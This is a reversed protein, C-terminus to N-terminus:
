DDIDIRTFPGPGFRDSVQAIEISYSQATGDAARMADTYNFSPVTLTEERRLGGADIIRLAYLESAEGLPVEIGEWSDADIRSRRIWSVAQGEASRVARVHVPSYPRLGVGQFALDRSVFSADDLSRRAPGIRYHRSLGRASAPLDIQRVSQDLLIFYSGQPWIQPMFADTGLQGRLRTGIEWLNEGILNAGAFQIIEWDSTDGSGIAAVNAGNLVAAAEASSLAGAALRVRLPAGRDWLGPQAAALATELTGAIAPREVLSNLTLGDRSPASYVAVSGPWPTAAVALHPAHPVEDGTLMPLDLFVPSVPVPAVFASVSPLDEVADSPDAVTPEVRLAELSRVGRDEVRDVRWTSGDELALMAGAGIRRLSPPLNLRITDRSLRVEALWREAVLQGEAATLAVPLDSASVADSADGPFVAEAVREEYGAEAATYAMRVRGTVEAEASRTESIGGQGEDDLATMAADISLDPIDPLPEFILKGEREVAMFGFVMMLSQLRARASETDGNLHGRVLGFLRSVDYHAVGARECLQAVVLDLPVADSRGGFWHGRTWNAGDTWRDRDNPFAPWPRADWAWVHGRSMDIMPGGYVESIPNNAPEEWYSTVARLYQAQLLDDRRGTSFHPLASESSKDDLFKNPQNTGKDIASCGYETFWIPKSQPVWPTPETLLSGGRREIHQSMWWGRLDKYRYVFSTEGGAKPYLAKAFTLDSADEPAPWPVYPEHLVIGGVRELWGGADGGSWEGSMLAAGGTTTAEGVLAGDMILRVRGPATPQLEWILEHLQGDFPLDSVPIDLVATDVNSGDLAVGGDGARLRFLTGGGRVGMWSGRGSGGCEWLVADSPVLPLRVRAKFVATTQRDAEAAALDGLSGPPVSGIVTAVDWGMSGDTIPERRQAARAEESPYYWHYGEGGEVNSRLYDLDHISGWFADAHVSGDRWDSLPMYNDIAIFDIEDDAWLPDLHFFVDGSGDQPHYGFYESWDAAYSLKADPLLQRVEAALDILRTVAPFGTEDRMQTLSRMESGICFAEVGGAAACVAAAHLIFRSYSWEDPGSYIITEGVVAFDAASATGFFADVSAANASTGDPSGDLGPALDGTIRGRWPLAPQGTAGTWPDPLANDQLIEMLLFPYFVVSLGADRMATIAEIVAGDAPTGGYVPRGDIRAIEDAQSRDIGGARWPMEAGDRSKDEVKPRVACHGARLDDGFWSYILSVSELNPLAEIAQALSQSFDTGGGETSTNAATVHGFGTQYTVPSTALVYEGTGPMMALARVSDAAAPTHAQQPEAMRVVEFAFQPVRNGFPGLDLDEIVVYAIGRYAPVMGAGEVAEMLPDPMQEETGKYIRLNLSTRDIEVGDAWIRGVRRVEGECLAIALSVSYSYSTTKPASPAGKGGGSTTATEVFQTAWIVHGGIRMRGYVEAVPAGEGAGTIRFREIRGREVPESGAGLLRQDIVRGLTAGVARGVVAGTMGLITGSGMGGIAAGAASLLITAM